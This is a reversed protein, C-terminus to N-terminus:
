AFRPPPVPPSLDSHLLFVAQFVLPDAVSPPFTRLSALQWAYDLKLKQKLAPQEKEAKKGAEVFRCLQCPNEGRLVQDVAASLSHDGSLDWTMKLWAVSQLIGWHGGVSVTLCLVLVIKGFLRSM